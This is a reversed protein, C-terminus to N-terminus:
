FFNNSYCLYFHAVTLLPGGAIKTKTLSKVSLQINQKENILLLETKLLDNFSASTCKHKRAIL